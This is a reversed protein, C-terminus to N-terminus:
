NSCSNTANDYYQTNPCGCQGNFSHNGFWIFANQVCILNNNVQDCWEDSACLSGYPRKTDCYTGNWFWSTSPLCTCIFPSVSTDCVLGYTTQCLFTSNCTGNITKKLLCEYNNWYRFTNCTCTGNICELNLDERCEESTTCLEGMVKRVLCKKETSNWYDTVYCGCVYQSEFYLCSTKQSSECTQVTSCQEGYNKKVKM